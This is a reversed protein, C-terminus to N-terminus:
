EVDELVEAVLMLWNYRMGQREELTPTYGLVADFPGATSDNLGMNKMIGMCIRYIKDEQVPHFKLSQVANYVAVCSYNSKKTDPLWKRVEDPALLFENAALRFLECYKM